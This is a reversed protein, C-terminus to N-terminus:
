SAVPLVGEPVIEAEEEVPVPPAPKEATLMTYFAALFGGAMFGVLAFTLPLFVAFIMGHDAAAVLGKLPAPPEGVALMMFSLAPVTVVAILGHVAASVGAIMLVNMMRTKNVPSGKMAM